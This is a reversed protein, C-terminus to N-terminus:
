AQPIGIGQDTVTLHLVTGTNVLELDVPTPEPSYKLANSLLNLLIHQISKQDLWVQESGAYRFRIEQGPRLNGELGSVLERCCAALNLHEPTLLTKGEELKSVSLFDNLM